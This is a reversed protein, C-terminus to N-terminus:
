EFKTYNINFKYGVAFGATYEKMKTASQVTQTCVIRM